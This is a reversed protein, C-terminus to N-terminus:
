SSRFISMEGQSRVLLIDWSHSEHINFIALFLKPEPNKLVILSFQFSILNIKSEIERQCTKIHEITSACDVFYILVQMRGSLQLLSCSWVMRGQNCWGQFTFGSFFMILGNAVPQMMRIDNAGSKITGPIYIVVSFFMILGNTGPQRM